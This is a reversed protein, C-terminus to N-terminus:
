PTESRTSLLWRETGELGLATLRGSRYAGTDIGIRNHHVEVAPSITHGHVVVVGHDRNSTLFPKRIWLADRETQRDIAVGPRIGAHVFYYDGFGINIPLQGIWSRHAAPIAADAAALLDEPSARAVVAPDVGWSELTADGGASLWLDLMPYTRNLADLLMQEHNGRLTTMTAWDLGQMARQVVAASEPGRDVLDGLLVVHTQAPARAADDARIKDLLTDLLDRRGHIDGIAYLRVGAPVSSPPRAKRRLGPFTWRRASPAPSALPGDDDNGVAGDIM